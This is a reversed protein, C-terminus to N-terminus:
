IIFYIFDPLDKIKSVSIALGAPTEITIEPFTILNRFLGNSSWFDCPQLSQQCFKSL